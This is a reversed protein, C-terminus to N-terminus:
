AAAGAHRRRDGVPGCAAELKGIERRAVAGVCRGCSPSGPDSLALPRGIHAGGAALAQQRRERPAGVRHAPRLGPASAFDGYESAATWGRAAAFEALAVLQLEPDQSRDRISVRAYIVPCIM